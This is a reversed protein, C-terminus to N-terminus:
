HRTGAVGALTRGAAASGPAPLTVVVRTGVGRKSRLTIDGGHLRVMERAIYLGLGTGPIHSSDSTVIRGFRTFLRHFDAAAIGIGQDAVAVSATGNPEDAWCEIVVEGGDPSYKIANDIVNTVVGAIRGRDATILLPEPGLVFYFRHTSQALPALANACERALQRLDFEQAALTVRNEELRATELMEEVLRNMEDVKAALVTAVAEAPLAGSVIMELYGRLVTLPGRLEHAALRLFESKLQELEVARALQERLRELEKGGEDM